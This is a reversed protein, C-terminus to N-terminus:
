KIIAVLLAILAIVIAIVSLRTQANASRLQAGALKELSKASDLQAAALEESTKVSELQAAALKQASKSQEESAKNFDTLAKEVRGNSLILHASVQTVYPNNRNAVAKNAQEQAEEYLEKQPNDSIDTM